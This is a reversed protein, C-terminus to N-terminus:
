RAPSAPGRCLAVARAAAARPDDATEHIAFGGIDLGAQRRPPRSAPGPGSWCRSSSAPRRRPM